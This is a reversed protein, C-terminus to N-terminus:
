VENIEDNLKKLHVNYYIEGFNEIITDKNDILKQRKINLYEKYSVDETM